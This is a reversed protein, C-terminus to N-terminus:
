ETCQDAGIDASGSRDDGDYDTPVESLVDGAGAVAGIALPVLLGWELPAGMAVFNGISVVLSMIIAIAATAM